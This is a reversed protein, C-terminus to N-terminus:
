SDGSAGLTDSKRKLGYERRVERAKIDPTYSQTLVIMIGSAPKITEDTGTGVITDLMEASTGEWMESGIPIARDAIVTADLEIKNGQADSTMSRKNVWRVPIEERDLAVTLHGYADEGRYEWLLAWQNLDSTEPSPM